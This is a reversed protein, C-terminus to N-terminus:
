LKFRRSLFYHVLEMRLNCEEGQVAGGGCVATVAEDDASGTTNGDFVAVLSATLSVARDRDLDGRQVPCSDCVLLDFTLAKGQSYAARPSVKGAGTGISGSAEASGHVLAVGAVLLVALVFYRKM